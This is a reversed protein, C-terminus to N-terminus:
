TKIQELPSAEVERYWKISPGILARLKWKLSKPESEILQLLRNIKENVVRREEETILEFTQIYSKVKNLNSTVTYYFGWDNSLLKAIYRGNIVEKDDNVGVEHEYFLAILDLVDKEAIKVIQLKELILDALTITPYDLELRGRLDITHCFELKDFFVDVTFGINKNVYIHRGLSMGRPLITPLPDYGLSKFFKEMSPVFKSYSILDIDTLERKSKLIHQKKSCHIRIACAGMIRLIIGNEKAAEVIRIAETVFAPQKESM